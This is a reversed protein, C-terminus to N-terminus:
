VQGFSPNRSNTLHGAALPRLGSVQVLPLTVVTVGRTIIHESTLVNYLLKMGQILHM